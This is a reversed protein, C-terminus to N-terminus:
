FPFDDAAVTDAVPEADEVGDLLSEPCVWEVVDVEKEIMPANPDPVKKTETGVVVRECVQSRSAFLTVKVGSVTGHLYFTDGSAQKRWKGGGLERRIRTMEDADSCIVYSSDGAWSVAGFTIDPHKAVLKTYARLYAVKEITEQDEIQDHELQCELVRAAFKAGTRRMTDIIARVTPEHLDHVNVEDTWHTKTMTSTM